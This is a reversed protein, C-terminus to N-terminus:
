RCGKDRAPVPMLYGSHQDVCVIVSNYVEKRHGVPRMAFKDIVVSEIPVDSVPSWDANSAHSGNPPKVAQSVQGSGHIAKLAKCFGPPYKVRRKMQLRM